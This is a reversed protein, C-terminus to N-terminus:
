LEFIVTEGSADDFEGDGDIDWEWSAIFGDPDYSGAADLTIPLGVVGIYPGNADAVPPQNASAAGVTMLVLVM